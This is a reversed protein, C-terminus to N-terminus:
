AFVEAAIRALPQGESVPDGDHVLWEVVYGACTSRVDIAETRTKVQVVIEGAAVVGGPHPIGVTATGRAPAVVLQWPPAAEVLEAAHEGIMSSAARLDEPTRISVVQADPLDRKILATLTGAPALEIAATVGLTALTRMCLDWRVPSCIQSVLRSLTEAGNTVVTGDANSLLAHHPHSAAVAGAATAVTDRAPTMLPSHFAGAVALPRLRARAPPDALLRDLAPRPGAAVVQGTANLNAIVCGAATISDRVEVPDGGLLAVMGGATEASAAAMAAGRATVLRLADDAAIAGAIASAAFEGVSHGAIVPREPLSPLAAITALSAAVILPQAIATDTIDTDSMVTGAAVLDIGTLESARELNERVVDLTLWSTLFGQQQAGQGPALIALV